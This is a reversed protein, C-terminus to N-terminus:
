TNYTKSDRTIKDRHTNSSEFDLYVEFNVNTNKAFIRYVLMRNKHFTVIMMQKWNQITARVKTPRPHKYNKLHINKRQNDLSVINALHGIIRITTTNSGHRM